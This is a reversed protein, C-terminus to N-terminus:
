NLQYNRSWSNETIKKHNTVVVSGEQRIYNEITMDLIKNREADLASYPEDLIWEKADAIITKM